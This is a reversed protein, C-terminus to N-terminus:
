TRGRRGATAREAGGAGAPDRTVTQQGSGLTAPAVGAYDFTVIRMPITETGAAGPTALGLGFMGALMLERLHRKQAAAM